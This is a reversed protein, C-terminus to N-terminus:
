ARGGMPQSEGMKTLAVPRVLFLAASEDQVLVWISYVGLATGIPIRFLDLGSLVLVLIRAWNKHRLLGSGGILGIISHLALAGCILSAITTLIITAEENHAVVTAWGLFVFVLIGILIGFISYAIHLVAVATVHREM